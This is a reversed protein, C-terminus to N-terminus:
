QRVLRRILSGGNVDSLRLLYVGAPLDTLDISTRQRFDAMRVRQGQLSYLEYRHSGAASLRLDVATHTPNPALKVVEAAFVPLSTPTDLGDCNEDIGNGAIEEAGPNITANTDDCEEFFFYGDQDEDLIEVMTNKTSNTIVPQNFDFFIGAKNAIESYDDLGERARITFSFYGHSAPENVNSDPLMIKRFIVELLGDTLNVEYEHSASLAQFTEYDLSEPLQDELFVTFATDNGTNQFRIMYEIEEDLQTYNSNSEEPRSPWSRKDNPDIACRLI